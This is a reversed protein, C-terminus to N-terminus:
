VFGRPWPWQDAAAIAKRSYAGLNGDPLASRQPQFSRPRLAGSFRDVLYFLILTSASLIPNEATIPRVGQLVSNMFCTNGHNILGPPLYADKEREQKEKVSKFLEQHVKHKQRLMPALRLGPACANSASRPHNDRSPPTATSRWRRLARSRLDRDRNCFDGHAGSRGDTDERKRQGDSVALLRRPAVSTQVNCRYGSSSALSPVDRLPRASACAQWCACGDAKSIELDRNGQLVAEVKLM